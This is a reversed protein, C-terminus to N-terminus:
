KGIYVDWDSVFCQFISGWEGEGDRIFFFFFLLGVYLICKKVIHQYIYHEICFIFIIFYIILPIYSTAVEINCM